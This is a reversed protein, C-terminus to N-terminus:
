KFLMHRLSEHLDKAKLASQVEGQVERWLLFEFPSQAHCIHSLSIFTVGRSIGLFIDSLTDSFQEM